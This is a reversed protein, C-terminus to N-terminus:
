IGLHAFLVSFFADLVVILFISEVVSKTTHFGVSESNGKVCMGEFCGVFSIIFGFFPAKIMGVWFALPTVAGVLQNKYQTFSLDLLWNMMIAGGLLAIIDFWFTLLPLAIVLALIRPFILMYFPSVGMVRLANIEENVVMMGIQATFASGSRGAIVISTLLVGVERLTGLGLLNVTYIQAGFRALQTIGQYALVIGILFSILTVIPLARVGVISLQRVFSSFRFHRPMFFISIFRIFFEGLFSIVSYLFNKANIFSEGLDALKSLYFAVKPADSPLKGSFKEAVALHDQVYTSTKINLPINLSKVVQLFDLIAVSGGMDILDIKTLDIRFSKYKLNNLSISALSKKIMLLNKVIWHGQLTIVYEQEIKQDTIFLATM